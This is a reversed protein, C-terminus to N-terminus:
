TTSNELGPPDWPQRTLDSVPPDSLIESGETEAVEGRVMNTNSRRDYLVLQPASGVMIWQTLYTTAPTEAFRQESCSPESVGFSHQNPCSEGDWLCLFVGYCVTEPTIESAM